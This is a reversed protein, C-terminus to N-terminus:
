NEQLKKAPMHMLDKDPDMNHLFSPLKHVDFQPINMDM